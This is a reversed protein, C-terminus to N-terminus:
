GAQKPRRVVWYGVAGALALAIVIGGVLLVTGVADDEGALELEAPVTLKVFQSVSKQGNRDGNSGDWVAVAMDTSVGRGLSAEDGASVGLDRQFVVAWRGHEWRGAGSTLQNATPSLTGFAEATLDTVPGNGAAIINGVYEAPFKLRPEVRQWPDDDVYGNPRSERWAPRKTGELVARWHWINVAGDAQGMCISPTSVSSKAPFELAVADSLDDLSALEDDQSSDSWEVRVFLKEETNLARLTVKKIGGGGLPYTLGQATLPVNISGAKKWISASPDLGPDDAVGTSKLQTTQSAAIDLDFSNMFAAVALALGLLVMVQVRRRQRRLNLLPNM